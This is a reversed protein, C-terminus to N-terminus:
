SPEGGPRHAANLRHQLLAPTVLAAIRMAPDISSEDYSGERDLLNVTGLVSAGHIVPLNLVAGLGLSVIFPTDPFYPAFDAPSRGLFPRMEGFVQRRHANPLAPKRGGVAYSAPDSSHIREVEAGGPLACTITYLRFGIRRQFVRGAAALTADPQGDERWAAIIPEMDDALSM